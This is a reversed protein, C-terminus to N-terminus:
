LDRSYITTLVAVHQATASYSQAYLPEEIPKVITLIATHQMAACFMEGFPQIQIKLNTLHRSKPKADEILQKTENFIEQSFERGNLSLELEFTGAEGIPNQNFWETFKCNYGFQTLVTKVAAQTGKIQHQRFAKKILTRKLSPKWTNDWRDVSYQWALFPLFEIPTDDIKSLAKINLPLACNRSTIKELNREFVTSNPPLLESM